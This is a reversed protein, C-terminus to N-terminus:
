SEELELAVIAFVEPQQGPELKMTYANTIETGAQEATIAVAQEPSTASVTSIVETAHVFYVDLKRPQIVTPGNM